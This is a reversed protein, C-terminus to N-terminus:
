KLCIKEGERRYVKDYTEIGTKSDITIKIKDGDLLGLGTLRRKKFEDTIEPFALQLTGLDENKAEELAAMILAAFSPDSDLIERSKYFDYLSM